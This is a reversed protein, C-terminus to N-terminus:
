PEAQQAQAPQEPEDQQEPQAEPEQPKLDPQDDEPETSGLKLIERAIENENVFSDERVVHDRQIETVINVGSAAYPSGPMGKSIVWYVEDGQERVFSTIATIFVPEQPDKDTATPLPQQVRYLKGERTTIQAIQRGLEIQESM